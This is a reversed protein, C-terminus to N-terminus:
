TYTLEKLEDIAGYFVDTDVAGGLGPFTGHDSDQWFRCPTIPRRGYRAIWLTYEHFYPKLYDQFFADGSYILPCHGTLEKMEHAMALAEAGVQGGATEVDLVHFLDGKVVPATAVFHRAQAVPDVGPRHFHYAGVPIACERARSAYTHFTPDVGSTGESAKLFVFQVHQALDHFSTVTNYHSLDVGRLTSM